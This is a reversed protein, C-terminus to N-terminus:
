GETQVFVRFKKSNKPITVISSIKTVPADETALTRNSYVIGSSTGNEYYGYLGIATGLYEITTVDSAQAKDGKCSTSIEFDISIKDGENCEYYNSIFKDRSIPAM